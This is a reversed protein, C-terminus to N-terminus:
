NVAKVLRAFERNNVSFATGDLAEKLNGGMNEDMSLIAELIKYLVDIMGRNQNAVAEAVYGQLVDIPAVAEAGAEGGVMLNSGNIGFVTPDNLVAGKKYWEIGFSPVSPPNLSFSGNISFHPLKIEPLKWEFNFKDQLYKVAANVINKVKNIPTEVLAILGNWVGRWINSLGTLAKEINLTFIGSLFDCIGDLIPKLSDTWLRGITSFVNTITPVLWVVFVAEFVPKLVNNIFNGIADLTPKLHNVWTDRIGATAEQFFAKIKPMNEAFANRTLEVTMLIFDWIPAGISQWIDQLVSWTESFIQRIKFMAYEFGAGTNLLELSIYNWLDRVLERAMDYLIPAVALFAKGIETVIFPIQDIIIRLITPLALVLGNFLAVAGEIITPLTKQLLGPLEPTLKEILIEIGNVLNPLIESIKDTIVEGAGVLASALQEATGAGSLFNSIAAKATTLSGALTKNENAYNGAAYASKEMFLMYAANVKQQTTELKGLGKEQAYIQLTTDNIAVGLNDMMTFNGKAMGAVAEMVNDVDIGMISAVDAARQMAEASMDASEEIDFGAGQFLAGMKNATALFDSASLGMKSFANQATKQMNKAYKDFVAESGGMNQELEGAAGMAKVLLGAMAASGAALGKAVVKGAAVAASGIKSFAGSIKSYAKEANGTTDKIAEDAGSNDIAIKGLLRFLEM